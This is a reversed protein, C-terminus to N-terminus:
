APPTPFQFAFLTDSRSRYALVRRAQGQLRSTSLEKGLRHTGRVPTPEILPGTDQSTFCTKGDSHSVLSGVRSPHLCSLDRARYAGVIPSLLLFIDLACRSRELTLSFFPLFDTQPESLATSLPCNLPSSFQRIESTLKVENREIENLKM